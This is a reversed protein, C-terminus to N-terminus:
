SRVAGARHARHRFRAANRQADLRQPPTMALHARIQARDVDDHRRFSWDVSVGCLSLLATLNDIRPVERGSEWRSVASQTTGAAVALEAQSLGANVRAARVLQSPQVNQMPM